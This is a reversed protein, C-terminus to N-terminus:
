PRVPRGKWGVTLGLHHRLVADILIGVLALHALPQGLAWLPCRAAEREELARVGLQGVLSVGGAVVFPWSGALAGALLAGIPGLHMWAVFSAALLALGPRHDMGAYLNKAFGRWIEGLGTYLRVAFAQPALLMGLRMGARKVARGLAVDELVADQVQGHGGLRAYASRRFLLFQGNAFAERRRPDNVRDLPHAARVFGGIAPLLLKEAISHLRWSGWLSLLDLQRARAVALSRRIAWPALEVDADLFLLWEGGAQEAGLQCAAPKGAWGAPPGGGPVVRVRAPDCAAALKGTEDTSRDDVVILELGPHDQALVARVARQINRQENRAPIVVTLLLEPPPDPELGVEELRLSPDPRQVLRLLLGLSWLLAMPWCLLHLLLVIM